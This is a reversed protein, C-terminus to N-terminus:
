EDDGECLCKRRLREWEGTCTLRVRWERCECSLPVHVVRYRCMAFGDTPEVYCTQIVTGDISERPRTCHEDSYGLDVEPMQACSLATVVIAAVSGMLLFFALPGYDRM